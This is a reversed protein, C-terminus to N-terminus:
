GTPERARDTGTRRHLEMPEWTRMNAGTGSASSPHLVSLRAGDTGTGGTGRHLEMQEQGGTPEQAAQQYHISSVCAGMPEQEERARHQKSIISPSCVPPSGDAGTGQRNRNGQPTGDTGMSDRQNRHRESITSPPCVPPSWRSRNRMDTGTGGTGRHLKMQEWAIGNTGTSSASPPHPVCAPEWRSRHRGHGQPAGDAGM